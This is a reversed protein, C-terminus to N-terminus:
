PRVAKDLADEFAKLIVNCSCTAGSVRAVNLSREALVRGVIAKAPAGIPSSGLATPAAEKLRGGAMVLRVAAKVM